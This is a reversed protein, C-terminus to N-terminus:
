FEVVDSGLFTDFLIKNANVHYLKLILNKLRYNESASGTACVTIRSPTPMESVSLLL